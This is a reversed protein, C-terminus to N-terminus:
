PEEPWDEDSLPASPNYKIKIRSMVPHPKLRNPKQHPTLHAVPKGHRCILVTEGEHEVDQLLASLHTKAEHVNVKKMVM